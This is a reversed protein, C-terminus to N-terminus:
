RNSRKMVMISARAPAAQAVGMGLRASMEEIRIM